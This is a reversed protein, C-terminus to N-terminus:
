LWDDIDFDSAFPNVCQVGDYSSGSDFDESFLIPIQNLKAMAWLQADHFAMQYRIVGRMAELV